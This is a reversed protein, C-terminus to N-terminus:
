NVMVTMTSPDDESTLMEEATEFLEDIVWSPKWLRKQM